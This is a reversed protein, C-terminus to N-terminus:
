RRRRTAVMGGLGAVLLAGPAPIADTDLSITSGALWRGDPSVSDDDFTEGFELLLVGNNLVLNGLGVSGLDVIGGSSYSGIGPADVGAGPTLRVGNPDGIEDADDFLVGAESQWSPSFAEITVDWGLGVITTATGTGAALDIAFVANGPLGFGDGSSIDSAFTIDIQTGGTGRTFNMNVLGTIDVIQRGSADYQPAANLAPNALATGALGAAAIVALTKM